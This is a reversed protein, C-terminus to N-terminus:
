KFTSGLRWRQGLSLSGLCLVFVAVERGCARSITAQMTHRIVPSLYDIFPVLTLVAHALTATVNVPFKQVLPEKCDGTPDDATRDSRVRFVDGHKAKSLYPCQTIHCHHDCGVLYAVNSANELLM